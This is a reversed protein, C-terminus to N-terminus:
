GGAEGADARGSARHSLDDIRERSRHVGQEWLEVLAVSKQITYGPTRQHYIFTRMVSVGRSCSTSPTWTSARVRPVTRSTDGLMPDQSTAWPYASGSIRCVERSSFWSREPM